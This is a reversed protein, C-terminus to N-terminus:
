YDAIEDKNESEMLEYDLLEYGNELFVDLFIELVKEDEAHTRYIEERKRKINFLRVEYVSM